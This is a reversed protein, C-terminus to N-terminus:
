NIEENKALRKLRHNYQLNVRIVNHEPPPVDTVHVESIGHCPGLDKVNVQLLLKSGVHLGHDRERTDKIGVEDGGVLARTGVVDELAGLLLLDLLDDLVDLLASDM